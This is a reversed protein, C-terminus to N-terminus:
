VLYNDLKDGTGGTDLIANVNAELSGGNKLHALMQQRVTPGADRIAQFRNKLADRIEIAQPTLGGTADRLNAVRATEQWFGESQTQFDENGMQQDIAYKIRRNSRLNRSAMDTGTGAGPVLKEADKKGAEM